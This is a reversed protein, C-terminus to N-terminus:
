NRVNLRRKSVVNLWCDHNTMDLIVDDLLREFFKQIIVDKPRELITVVFFSRRGLTWSVKAVFTLM